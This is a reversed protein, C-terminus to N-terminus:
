VRKEENQNAIGDPHVASAPVISMASVIEGIMLNPPM